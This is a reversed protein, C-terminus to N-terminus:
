RLRLREYRRTCGILLELSSVLAALGRKVATRDLAALTRHLQGELLGTVSSFVLPDDNGLQTRPAVVLGSWGGGEAEVADRLVVLESEARPGTLPSDDLQSVWGDTDVRGALPPGSLQARISARQEFIEDLLSRLDGAPQRRSIEDDIEIARLGSGLAALHARRISEDLRRVYPDDHDGRRRSVAGDTEPRVAANCSVLARHGRLRLRIQASSAYEIGVADADAWWKRCASPM